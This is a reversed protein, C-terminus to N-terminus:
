ERCSQAAERECALVEIRAAHSPDPWPTESFADDVTMLAWVKANEETWGRGMACMAFSSVYAPRWDAEFEKALTAGPKGMSARVAENRAKWTTM